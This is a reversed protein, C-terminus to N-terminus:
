APCLECRTLLIVPRLRLAELMEKFERAKTVIRSIMLELERGRASRTIDDVAISCLKVVDDYLSPDPLSIQASAGVMSFVIVRGERKLSTQINSEPKDKGETWISWIYMLVVDALANVYDINGKDRELIEMLRPEKKHCNGVVKLTEKEIDALAEICENWYTKWDDLIDWRVKNRTHQKLSKLLLKNRRIIQQESRNNEPRAGEFYLERLDEEYDQQLIKGLVSDVNNKLSTYTPVNIGNVLADALTILSDIHLRFEVATVHMRAQQLQVLSQKQKWSEYARQAIRREVGTQEGIERWSTSKISERLRIIEDLEESTPEKRGM